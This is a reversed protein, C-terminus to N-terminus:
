NFLEGNESVELNEVPNGYETYDPLKDSLKMDNLTVYFWNENGIWGAIDDLNKIKNETVLRLLIGNSKNHTTIMQVSNSWLLNATFIVALNSYIVFKYKFFM